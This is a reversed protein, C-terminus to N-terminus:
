GPCPLLGQKWLEAAAAEMSALSTVDGALGCAAPGIDRAAAEARDLHRAVGAVKAGAAAFVQAIGKSGGTVLVSRNKLSSAM